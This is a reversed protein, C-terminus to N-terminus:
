GAPPRWMAWNTPWTPTPQFRAAEEFGFQRYWGVNTEEATFLFCGVGAADALALGPEVLARGVGSRQHDPHVGLVRLYFHPPHRRHETRNAAQGRRAERLAGVGWPLCPALEIAQQVQRWGGIPYGDPGLWAAVGAVAGDVLAAHVHGHGISDRVDAALYRPLVRRRASARPLLHVTESYTWFASVLTPLM